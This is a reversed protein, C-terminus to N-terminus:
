RFWIVCCTAWDLLSRMASSCFPASALEDSEWNRCCFASGVTESILLRPSDVPTAYALWAAKLAKNPTSGTNSPRIQRHDGAVPLDM